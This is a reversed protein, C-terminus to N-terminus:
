SVRMLARKPSEYKFRVLLELAAKTYAEAGAARISRMLLDADSEALFGGGYAASVLLAASLRPRLGILVAHGGDLTLRGGSFDDPLTLYGFEGPRGKKLRLARMVDYALVARAVSQCDPTGIAEAHSTETALEYYGWTAGISAPILDHNNSDTIMFMIIARMQEIRSAFLMRNCM